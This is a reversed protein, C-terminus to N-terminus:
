RTAKTEEKPVDYFRTWWRNRGEHKFLLIKTGLDSEVLAASFTEMLGSNLQIQHVERIQYTKIHGQGFGTMKVAQSIVEEPKADPPLSIYPYTGNVWLGNSANLKQILASIPDNHITETGACSAFAICILVSAVNKM